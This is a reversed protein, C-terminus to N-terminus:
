RHGTIQGNSAACRAFQPPPITELIKKYNWWSVPEESPKDPTVAAAPPKGLKLHLIPKEANDLM